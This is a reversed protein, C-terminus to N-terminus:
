VCFLASKFINSFIATDLMNLAARNQTYFDVEPEVSSELLSKVTDIM